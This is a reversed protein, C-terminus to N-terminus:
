EGVVRGDPAVIFDICVPVMARWGGDDISALVRVDGGPHADWRAEVEIQYRAGSPGVIEFVDPGAGIMAVLQGYTRAGYNALQSELVLRAEKSDM